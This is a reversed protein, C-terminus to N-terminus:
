PHQSFVFNGANVEVIPTDLLDVNGDGTLDTSYYGFLFLNADTEVSGIDLLDMNDDIVVDGSFFAWVGTAVQVQAGTGYAQTAATSFNYSSVASIAVPAASWTQIANRHKVAIYYNGPTVATTFVCAATGNTQLVATTTHLAGYPANEDRLEVTISDCDTTPNGQGQNALVPQMASTGDWYGEIFMTLNVTTNTVPPGVVVTYDEVEGYTVTGCSSLIGTWMVRTRMRTSGLTSTMPITITGTFPVSASGGTLVTIETVDDLIGDQNFDIWAAAQDSGFYNPCLVSVTYTSGQNVTTSQATFDSYQNTAPCASTNNITNFMVESIYEDGSTCGVTTAGAACYCSLPANLTISVPTSSGTSPGASCTVDCYYSAAATITATYVSTTAGAIASAGAYWQYSIGSGPTNNQLSFNVVTGACVATASAITNGPTPTGTCATTPDINILYDETEGYGYSLCPTLSAGSFGEACIVRMATVGTLATVPISLLGSVVKDGAPSLGTAASTTASLYVAEGADAFSGNHNFDIWVGVGNFFYTAGDCENVRVEFPVNAGQIVSTFNGLSKFNSYKSLVSGAGPAVTLCGNANAYLPDTTAGNVTVQYIEEDFTNSPASACYCDIFSSNSLTVAGSNTSSGGPNTCTVECYYSSVATVTATYYSNTAGAIATAGEYWQYTVGTGNNANSLGLNVTAGPCVSAASATTMGPSPAGSCAVPIQIDVIYDESEGYDTTLCADAGTFAVEYYARTRVRMKTLGGTATLPVPIITTYSVPTTATSNNGIFTYESADFTGNQDFDLWVGLQTWAGITTNLPYATGAVLQTTTGAAPAYNTYYPSTAPFVSTNNIASITVNTLIGYFGGFSSTPICYCSLFGNITVSALSSAVTSGGPNTCTVDCYFDDAATIVQSYFANTAGAIPGGNNVWQYTIGSGLNTNTLSFNVNTGPCVATASAITAGPNPAGSCATNTVVDVLYDETEGYNYVLCPTLSAGSFGEATIVRMVTSGLAAGAPVTFTGTIVKDGGPSTGTAASTTAEIYVAEGADTFLGNQNWDIWLGIGNNFYTPGDCENERVEFAVTTGQPLSTLSPLTKFNSYRSLLSGPGPAPTTCGNGNAYLANTSAGNVTVQYIEEDATIGPLSSCYCNMFNDLAITVLNSGVATGGNCVVDCYFDDAATIAQAYVANTAGAIPGAGNNWQYTVASGLTQNQLSFNVTAGPCVTTGSAITNGPNPTGTCLTNLIVTVIYDETEGYNYTLCPTLTAGAFGEATIVRMVTNGLVAGSPVTFTGTIVKDGGPSLGTAASTIPEIYVAEGADTFLGNQNFDIWMGIGNNFYTAGDCENQRIEFTITASQAISTLSPLTTFNSYRSLISGPGPAVTTCGNANAYLPDTSAGNVTVQYLEEDATIGPSSGCYCNIFNNMTIAVPTSSASGGGSCTVTCYFNDAASLTANYSNSTAGAIAGAGNFWQYSVGSGTTANQLSLTTTTSPCIPNASALTNGPAPTGSCAGGGAYTIVLSPVGFNYSNTSGRKLAFCAYGAILQGQIFTAMATAIAASGGVPGNTQLTMPHTGSWAGTFVNSTNGGIACRAFLTAGTIASLDDTAKNLENLTSGSNVTGAATSYVVNASVITVGAYPALDFKFWGRRSTLEEIGTLSSATQVGATTVTGYVSPSITVTTQAYAGTGITCVLLTLCLVRLWNPTQWTLKHQMKNM